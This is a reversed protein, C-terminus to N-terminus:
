ETEKPQARALAQRAVHEVHVAEHPANDWGDRDPAFHNVIFDAAKQLAEYLDPASAILRANAQQESEWPEDFGAEVIAIPGNRRQIRDNTTVKLDEFGTAMLTWPGKTFGGM